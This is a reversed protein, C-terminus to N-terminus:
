DDRDDGADQDDSAGSTDEAVPDESGPAEQELDHALRALYTVVEAKDYGRRTVSFTKRRIEDPDSGSPDAALAALYSAVEARDYGRRTVSFTKQRIEQPSENM